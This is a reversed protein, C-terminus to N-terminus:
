DNITVQKSNSRSDIFVNSSSEPREQKLSTPKMSSPRLHSYKFSINSSSHKRQYFLSLEKHEPKVSKINIVPTKLINLNTRFALQPSIVGTSHFSNHKIISTKNLKHKQNNMFPFDIKSKKNQVMTDNNIKVLFDAINSEFKKIEILNQVSECQNDAIEQLKFEIGVLKDIHGNLFKISDGIKKQMSKLLDDMSVAFTRAIKYKDRFNKADKRLMTLIIFLKLLYDVSFMKESIKKQKKLRNLVLIEKMVNAAKHEENEPNFIKKLKLFAKKEEKKMEFYNIITLVLLAMLSVGFISLTFSILRVSLTNIYFDGFGSSFSNVIMLWLANVFIGLNSQEIKFESDEENLAAFEFTRVIVSSMVIFLGFLIIVYLLPHNRLQSKIIFQVNPVVKYARCISTAIKSDWLTFGKLMQFILYFKSQNLLNIFFCLYLPYVIHGHRAVYIPNVSPFNIILAILIEILSNKCLFKMFTILSESMTSEIGKSSANKILFSHENKTRYIILMVNTVNMIINSVRLLNEVFILKRQKLLGYLEEIKYKERNENM